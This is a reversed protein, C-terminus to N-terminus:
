AHNNKEQREAELTLLAEIGAPCVEAIGLYVHGDELRRNYLPFNRCTAPRGDYIECGPILSKYFPCPEKLFYTGDFLEVIGHRDEASLPLSDVEAKTLKLGEFATCCAGCRRCNFRARFEDIAEQTALIHSIRTKAM